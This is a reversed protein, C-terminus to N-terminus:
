ARACTSSVCRATRAARRSRRATPRSRSPDPVGLDIDGGAASRSCRPGPAPAARAPHARRAAGGRRGRPDRVAPWRRRLRASGGHARRPRDARCPGPAARRAGRLPAHHATRAPRVGVRLARVARPRRALLRPEPVLGATGAADRDAALQAHRAARAQGDPQRRTPLRGPQVRSRDGAAVSAAGRATRRSRRGAARRAGTRRGVRRAAARARPQRRGRGHARRPAAGHAAAPRGRELHRRGRGPQAAARRAPERADAGLERDGRGPPGAAALPRAGGGRAGARRPAPGARQAGRRPGHRAARSVARRGALAIGLMAGVGALLSACGGIRRACAVRRATPRPAARTWSRASPRTSSPGTRQAGTWRRPWARAATSSAPDRGGAEWERAAVALHHHLRRGEADEDIWDRLRPWERLLAEHAVEVRDDASRSSVATPSRASCAGSTRATPTSSARAGRAACPAATPRSAPSGCCSRARSRASM